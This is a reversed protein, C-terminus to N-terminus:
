TEAACRAARIFRHAVQELIPRPQLLVPHHLLVTQDAAARSRELPVPKRCRRASRKVFGRFGRDLAVGEAQALAIMDDRDVSAHVRWAVKYFAPSGGTTNRLPALIDISNTQTLLFAVADHRRRHHESLKAIQPKLVAAQLGSLPFATNGRDNNIKARQYVDVRSTVIAGGRGATLLKSGGFSLVGADGWSGAMRGEISAGPVQCADEVVQLNHQRAFQMIRQMPALGGHLHSVLLARTRPGMAEHLCATDICWTDTEIDVLVPRAGLAEVARFNGPFDYAAMIVEDGRGVGVGRLALEVGVTGSCCLMVHTVGLLARLQEQLQRQHHSEYRGWSGDEYAQQLALLVDPDTPPWPPRISMPDSARGDGSASAAAPLTKKQM